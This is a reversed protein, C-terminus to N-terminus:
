GGNGRAEKKIIERLRKKKVKILSDYTSVNEGSGMSNAPISSDTM